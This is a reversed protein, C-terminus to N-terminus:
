ERNRVFAEAHTLITPSETASAEREYLGLQVVHSGGFSVYCLLRDALPGWSGFCFFKRADTWCLDFTPPYRCRNSPGWNATPHYGVATYRRCNSSLLATGPPPGYHWLSFGVSHADKLVAQPVRGAGSCLLTETSCCTPAGGGGVAGQALVAKDLCWSGTQGDNKQPKRVVTKMTLFKITHENYLSPPAAGHERHTRRSM